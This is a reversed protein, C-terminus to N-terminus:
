RLVANYYREGSKPFPYLEIMREILVAAETEGIGKGFTHFGHNTVFQIKSTSPDTDARLAWFQKARVFRINRIDTNQHTQTSIEIGLARKQITLEGADLTVVTEGTVTWALWGLFFFFGFVYIAVAVLEFTYQSSDLHNGSLLRWYHVSAITLWVVILFAYGATSPGRRVPISVAIRGPTREWELRGELIEQM